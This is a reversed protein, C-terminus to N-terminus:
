ATPAEPFRRFIDAVVADIAKSPNRVAEQKVRGEALGQWVLSNTRVDVLDISLTGAKYEKTELDYPYRSWMRYTGARYGYFGHPGPASSRLEQKEDVNLFFNVRLDPNREDYRYGLRELQLRTTLKLRSTMITSYRARDTSVQDFFAFTKYSSMKASPDKDIHVKPGSACAALLGATCLALLRFLKHM